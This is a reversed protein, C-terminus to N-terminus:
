NDNIIERMKKMCIWYNKESAYNAQRIRANLVNIDRKWDARVIGIQLCRRVEKLNEEGVGTKRLNELLWATKEQYEACFFEGNEPHYELDLLQLDKSEPLFCSDESSEAIHLYYLLAREKGEKKRIIRGLRQLHQRQASTGSLIIGIAVDPIDVGEDMSKCTILIRIDGTRFRELINKNAQTGMQSHIRGVRQPYQRSLLQYLQDAQTIREGFIMIKEGSDLRPILACVCSLRLSALCILNKRQFTLMMYSAAMDAIQLNQSGSLERLLEFREHLAAFRLSPCLSLLNSYLRNIKDTLSNYDIREKQTFPLSIHFIACPCVTQLVLAKEMGYTYIERGLVSALYKRGEGPPLTASLGLSFFHRVWPQIHPLFEFILQNQGSKYHHCEDAILLVMKGQRLDSLIQRALEYRASNVVYIMYPCDKKDKFGGGRLGIKPPPLAATVFFTHVAREWQRMLAGTPVVIKVNLKQGLKHELRCAAELALLTKGSGTVAQVIGRGRNNFWASLCEEQWLYLPTFM